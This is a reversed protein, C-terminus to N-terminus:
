KSGYHIAIGGFLYKKFAVDVFGAQILRDKFEAPTLFTMTTQHLYNFPESEGTTFRGILPMITKMHLNFVFRLIPNAPRSLELIAFRGGPKLVRTMELLVEDLFHFVNRMAFGSVIGDFSQNKFPLLNASGQEIAIKGAFSNQGALKAKALALMEFSIDFVHVESAASAAACRALDGTGAALDLIRGAAREQLFAITHRRWSEDRFLSVWRNFRDYKPALSDFLKAVYQQRESTQFSESKLDSFNEPMAKKSMDKVTACTRLNRVRCFVDPNSIVDWAKM